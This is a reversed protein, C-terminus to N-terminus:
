IEHVICSIERVFGEPLTTLLGAYQHEQEELEELMAAVCNAFGAAGEITRRFAQLRDRPQLPRAVSIPQQQQQQQQQQVHQEHEANAASPGRMAREPWEQLEGQGSALRPGTSSGPHPQGHGTDQDLVLGATSTGIHGSIPMNVGEFMTFYCQM